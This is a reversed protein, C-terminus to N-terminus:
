RHRHHAPTNELGTNLWQPTNWGGGSLRNIIYAGATTGTYGVYAITNGDGSIVPHTQQPLVQYLDYSYMGNQAITVPTQWAGNTYESVVIHRSNDDSGSDPILAVLRTNSMNLSIFLPDDWAEQYIVAPTSWGAADTLHTTDRLQIKPTSGGAAEAILTNGHHQALAAPVVLALCIAVTLFLHNIKV